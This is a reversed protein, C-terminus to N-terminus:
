GTKVPVVALTGAASDLRVKAGMPLSATPFCHGCRFNWLVPMDSSLNRAIEVLSLSKEPEPADCDNFDGFILGVCDDLKGALRLQNLMRDIKYPQEETEEIFLIKGSTDIEYPTGMSSAIISLNGGCLAGEAAGETLFEWNHGPPNFIQRSEEGFIYRNFEKLTYPDATSFKPTAPMPTHFTVFGAVDPIVNHLATVDSYGSFFKPNQRIIDFDIKDLIRQLGYGGRVCFIGAIEPDSFAWNLDHARLDDDGALYGYSAFCSKGLVPLLGLTKVYSAAFDIFHRNEPPSSPAILAVKDGKKLAAPWFIENM